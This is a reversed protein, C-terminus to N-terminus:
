KGGPIALRRIEVEAISSFSLDRTKPGAFIQASVYCSM